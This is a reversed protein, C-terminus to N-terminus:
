TYSRRDIENYAEALDPNRFSVVDINKGRFKKTQVFSPMRCLEYQKRVSMIQIKSEGSEEYKNIVKTELNHIKRHGYRRYLERINIVSSPSRFGINLNANSM